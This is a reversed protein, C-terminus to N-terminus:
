ISQFKQHSVEYISTGHVAFFSLFGRAKGSADLFKLLSFDKDQDYQYLAREAAPNSCSCILPYMENYMSFLERSTHM